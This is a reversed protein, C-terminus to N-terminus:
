VRRVMCVLEDDAVARAIVAGVGAEAKMPAPARALPEVEFGAAGRYFPATRALTLLYVAATPPSAEARAVLRRVLEAGVGRRRFAPRVFVSALERAAADGGPVPRLQACGVFGDGAAAATEAVVFHEPRLFLPNMKEALMALRVRGMDAATAARYAVDLSSAYTLASACLLCFRMIPAPKM